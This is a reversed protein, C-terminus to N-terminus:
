EGRQFRQLAIPLQEAEESLYLVPMTPMERRSEKPDFVMRGFRWIRPGMIRPVASQAVFRFMGGATTSWLILARFYPLFGISLGGLQGPIPPLHIALNEHADRIAPPLRYHTRCAEIAAEADEPSIDDVVAWFESPDQGLAARVAELLSQPSMAEFLCKHRELGNECTEIALISWAEQGPFLKEATSGRAFQELVELERAFVMIVNSGPFATVGLQEQDVFANMHFPDPVRSLPIVRGTSERHLECFAKRLRRHFGPFPGPDMELVAGYNLETSQMFDNM